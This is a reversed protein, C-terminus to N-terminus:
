EAEAPSPCGPSPRGCSARGRKPGAVHKGLVRNIETQCGRGQAHKKFWSLGDADTRITPSGKKGSM